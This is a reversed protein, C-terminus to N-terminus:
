MMTSLHNPIQTVMSNLILFFYKFYRNLVNKQVLRGIEVFNAWLIILYFPNSNSLNFPWALNLSSSNFFTSFDDTNKKKM